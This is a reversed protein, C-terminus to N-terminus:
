LPEAQKLQNELQASTVIELNTSPQSSGKGENKVKNAVYGEFEDLSLTEKQFDANDLYKDQITSM